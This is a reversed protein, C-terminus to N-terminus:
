QPAECSSAIEEGFNTSKLMNQNKVMGLNPRLVKLKLFVAWTKKETDSTRRGNGERTCNTCTRGADCTKDSVDNVM